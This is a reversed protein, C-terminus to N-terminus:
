RPRGTFVPVLLYESIADSSAFVQGTGHHKLQLTEGGNGAFVLELRDERPPLGNTMTFRYHCGVAAAELRPAITLSVAPPVPKRIIFGGDPPNDDFVIEHASDGAFEDRYAEVDRTVTARLEDILRRGNLRVLDAKRAAIEEERARIADRKREDDAIRKIWDAVAVGTSMAVGKWPSELGPATQCEAPARSDPLVAWISLRGDNGM